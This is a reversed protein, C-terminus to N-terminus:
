DIWIGDFQSILEACIPGLQVLRLVTRWSRETESTGSILAPQPPFLTSHRQAVMDDTYTCQDLRARTCKADDGCLTPSSSLSSQVAGTTYIPVPLRFPRARHRSQLLSSRIYHYRPLLLVPGSQNDLLSSIHPATPSNYYDCCYYYFSQSIGLSPVLYTHMMGCWVGGCPPCVVCVCVCV